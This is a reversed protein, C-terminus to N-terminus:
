TRVGGSWLLYGLELLVMNVAPDKPTHITPWEKALAEPITIDLTTIAYLLSAEEDSLEVIYRLRPKPVVQTVSMKKM